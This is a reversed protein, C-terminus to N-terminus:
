KEELDVAEILDILDQQSHVGIKKYVNYIHAKATHNSIVLTNEIYEANRGKGLLILVELQRPSLDYRQAVVECKHTFFGAKSKETQQETEKETTAPEVKVDDKTYVFTRTIIFIAMILVVVVTIASDGWTSTKFTWYSISWGVFMGFANGVRGYSFISTARLHQSIGTKSLLSTNIIGYATFVGILFAACILRGNANLFLMPFIGCASLPLFYRLPKEFESRKTITAILLIAVSGAIIAIGIYLVSRPQVEAITGCYGAFGFGISYVFALFISGWAVRAKEHPEEPYSALEEKLNRPKDEQEPVPRFRPLFGITAMLVTIGALTASTVGILTIGIAAPIVKLLGIVMFVLGGVGMMGASILLVNRDRGLSYLFKSWQVM